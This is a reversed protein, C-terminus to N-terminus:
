EVFMGGLAKEHKINGGLAKEYICLRSIPAHTVPWAWGAWAGSGACGGGIIV